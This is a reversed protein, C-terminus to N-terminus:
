GLGLARGIDPLLNKRTILLRRHIGVTQVRQIGIDPLPALLDAVALGLGDVGEWELLEKGTLEKRYYEFGSTRGNWRPITKPGPGLRSTPAWAKTQRM